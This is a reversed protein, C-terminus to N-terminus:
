HSSPALPHSSGPCLLEPPSAMSRRVQSGHGSVGPAKRQASRPPTNFSSPECQQQEKTSRAIAPLIEPRQGSHVGHKRQKENGSLVRSSRSSRTFSAPISIVKRWLKKESGATGTLFRFTPHSSRCPPLPPRSLLPPHPIHTIKDKFQATISM